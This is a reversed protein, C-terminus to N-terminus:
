DKKLQIVKGKWIKFKATGGTLAEEERKEKLKKLLDMDAQRELLTMDRKFFVNKVKEEGANKLNKAEKLIHWKTTEKEVTIRLPRPYKMDSKKPGLRVPNTLATEVNLELMISRLEEVDHQRKDDNTGTSLEPINFVVLNCKRRERDELEQLQKELGTEEARASSQPDEETDKGPPENRLGRARAMEELSKLRDELAGLGADKGPPENQQGQAQAMEELSKLRDEIAGLAAGDAKEALAVEVVGLRREMEDTRNYM